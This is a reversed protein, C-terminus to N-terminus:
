ENDSLRASSTVANTIPQAYQLTVNDVLIAGGFLEMLLPSIGAEIAVETSEVDNDLVENFMVPYQFSIHITCKTFM